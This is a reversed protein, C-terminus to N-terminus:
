HKNKRKLSVHPDNKGDTMNNIFNLMATLDEQGNTSNFNQNMMQGFNPNQLMPGMMSGMVDFLENIQELDEINNGFKQINNKTEYSKEKDVTKEPETVYASYLANGSNFYANIKTLYKKIFYIECLENIILNFNNKIIKFSATLGSDTYKVVVYLDHMLISRNIKEIFNFIRDNKFLNYKHNVKYVINELSNLKNNIFEINEANITMELENKDYYSKRNNYLNKKNIDILKILNQMTQRMTNYCKQLYETNKLLLFMGVGITMLLIDVFGFTMLIFLSFLGGIHYKTYSKLFGDILVGLVLIPSGIFYYLSLLIGCVTLSINM